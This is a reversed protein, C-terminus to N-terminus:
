LTEIHNDLRKELSFGSLQTLTHLLGNLLACICCLECVPNESVCM